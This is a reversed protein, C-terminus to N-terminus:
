VFSTKSLADESAEAAEVQKSQYCGCGKEFASIAASFSVDDATIGDKVPYHMEHLLTSDQEWQEGKECKITVASCAECAPIAASFSVVNANM